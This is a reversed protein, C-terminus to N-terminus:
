YINEDQKFNLVVSKLSLLIAKQNCNISFVSLFLEM